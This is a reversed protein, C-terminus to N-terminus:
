SSDFDGGSINNNVHKEQEKTQHKQETEVATKPDETCSSMM